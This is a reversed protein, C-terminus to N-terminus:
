KRKWGLMYAAFAIVNTAAGAIIASLWAINIPPPDYVGGEFTGYGAHSAVLAILSLAGILYGVPRLTQLNM